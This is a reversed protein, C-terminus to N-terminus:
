HLMAVFRQPRVSPLVRMGCLSQVFFLFLSLCFSLSLSVSLSLSLCLALSLSPALQSLFLSFSPLLCCSLLLSLLCQLLKEVGPVRLFKDSVTPKFLGWLVCPPPSDRGPFLFVSLLSLSLFRNRASSLLSSTLYMSKRVPVVSFIVDRSFVGALVVFAGLGM